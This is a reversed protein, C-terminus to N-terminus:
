VMMVAESPCSLTCNACNVCKEMDLFKEGDEEAWAKVPCYKSVRCTSCRRCKERDVYPYRGKLIGM